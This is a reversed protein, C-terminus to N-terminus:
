RISIGPYSLILHSRHQVQLVTFPVYKEDDDTFNNPESPLLIYNCIPPYLHILKPIHTLPRWLFQPFKHAQKDPYPMNKMHWNAQALCKDYFETSQPPIPQSQHKTTDYKWQSQQIDSPFRLDDVRGPKNGSPLRVMQNPEKPVLLQIPKPTTPPPHQPHRYIPSPKDNRYSFCPTSNGLEGYQQSENYDLTGTFYTHYLITINLNESTANPITLKNYLQTASGSADTSHWFHVAIELIQEFPIDPYTIIPPLENIQLVTFSQFDDPQHQSTNLEKIVLYQISLPMFNILHAHPQYYYYNNSQTIPHEIWAAKNLQQLIGTPTM